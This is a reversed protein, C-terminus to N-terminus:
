RNPKDDMYFTIKGGNAIETYTLYRRKLTQGNSSPKGNFRWADIM